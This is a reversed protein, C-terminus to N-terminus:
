TRVATAAKPSTSAVSVSAARVSPALGARVNPRMAIGRATLPSPAPAASDGVRGPAELRMRADREVIAPARDLLQRREMAGTRHGVAFDYVLRAWLEPDLRFTAAPQAAARKLALLTAPPLVASWLRHLERYGQAFADFM